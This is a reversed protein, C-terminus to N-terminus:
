PNQTFGLEIDGNKKVKPFNMVLVDPMPYHLKKSSERKCSPCKLYFIMEDGCIEDIEYIDMNVECNSCAFGIHDTDDWTVMCNNDCRYNADQKLKKNSYIARHM